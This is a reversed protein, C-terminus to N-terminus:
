LDTTTNLVINQIKEDSSFGLKRRYFRTKIAWNLYNALETQPNRIIIQWLVFSHKAHSLVSTNLITTHM